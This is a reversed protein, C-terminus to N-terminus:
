KNYVIKIMHNQLMINKSWAFNWILGNLNCNLKGVPQQPLHHLAAGIFFITIRIASFALTIICSKIQDM